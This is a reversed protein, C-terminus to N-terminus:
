TEGNNEEIFADLFNQEEKIRYKIKQHILAIEKKNKVPQKQLKINQRVLSEIVQSLNRIHHALKEAPNESELKELQETSM